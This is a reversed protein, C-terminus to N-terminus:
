ATSGLGLGWVPEADACIQAASESPGDGETEYIRAESESPMNGPGAVRGPCAYREVTCGKLQPLDSYRIGQTDLVAAASWGASAVTKRLVLAVIWLGLSSLFPAIEDATLFDASPDDGTRALREGLATVFIHLLLLIQLLMLLRTMIHQDVHPPRELWFSINHRFGIGAVIMHAATIVYLPPYLPAYFLSIAM